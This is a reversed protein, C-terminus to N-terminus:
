YTESVQELGLGFYYCGNLSYFTVIVITLPASDHYNQQKLNYSTSFSFKASSESPHLLLSFLFYWINKKKPFAISILSKPNKLYM